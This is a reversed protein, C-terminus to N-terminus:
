IEQGSVICGLYIDKWPIVLKPIIDKVEFSSADQFPNLFIYLTFLGLSGWWSILFGDKEKYFDLTSPNQARSSLFTECFSERMKGLFPLTTIFIQFLFVHNKSQKTKLVKTPQIVSWSPRCDCWAARPEPSHAGAVRVWFVDVNEKGLLLGEDHCPQGDGRM